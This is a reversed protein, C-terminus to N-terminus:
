LEKDTIEAENHEQHYTNFGDVLRDLHELHESYEIILAIVPLFHIWSAYDFEKDRQSVFFVSVLEKKRETIEEYFDNMSHARVRGMYKQMIREHYNTFDDLQQRLMDEVEEPLQHTVHDHKALSKLIDEAKRTTRIMQRFLVIKRMRAYEQKRFLSREEKYLSFISELKVISDRIRQEDEKLTRYDIDHHLLLRIWQMIEENIGSIKHYMQNEHKPPLFLMNVVFASFVGTMVLLFRDAALLYFNDAPSGMIIVATVVALPIISEKKWKIHIAIVLVVVAGIVFPESGFATVFAVALLASIINAQIQDWILTLSKHVSPQVAFFAALGAFAPNVFDLWMAAYLALTVALGTKFIRAGLKM